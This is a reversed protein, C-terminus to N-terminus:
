EVGTIDDKLATTCHDKQIKDLIWCLLCGWNDKRLQAKAARASITENVRGNADVNCTEDIMLAIHWAKQTNGFTCTLYRFFTYILGAVLIPFLILLFISQKLHTMSNDEEYINGGVPEPKAPDERRSAAPSSAVDERSPPM